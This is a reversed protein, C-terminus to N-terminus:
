TGGTTKFRTLTINITDQYIDEAVSLSDNNVVQGIKLWCAWSLKQNADLKGRLYETVQHKQAVTHTFVRVECLHEIEDMDGLSGLVKTNVSLERVTVLPPEFGRNSSARAVKVQWDPHDDDFWLVLTNYLLEEADIAPPM